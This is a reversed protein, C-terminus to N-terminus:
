RSDVSRRASVHASQLLAHLSDLTQQGLARFDHALDGARTCADSAELAQTDSASRTALRAADRSVFRFGWDLLRLRLRFREAATVVLPHAARNLAALRRLTSVRFASRELPPVPVLCAAARCALWWERVRLGAAHSCEQLAALVACLVERARERQGRADHSAALTVGDVIAQSEGAYIERLYAFHRAAHGELVQTWMPWQVRDVLRRAYLFPLLTLLWMLGLAIWILTAM